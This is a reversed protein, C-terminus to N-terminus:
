GTEVRLVRDTFNFTVGLSRSATEMGGAMWLCMTYTSGSTAPTKGGHRMGTYGWLHGGLESLTFHTHFPEPCFGGTRGDGTCFGGLGATEQAPQAPSVAPKSFFLIARCTHGYCVPEEFM